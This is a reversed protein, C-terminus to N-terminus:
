CKKSSWSVAGGNILFVYGLIARRHKQSAGDANVYGVLGRKEGGYVLKFEQM